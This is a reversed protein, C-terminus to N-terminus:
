KHNYITVRNKYVRKLSKQGNPWFDVKEDYTNSKCINATKLKPWNQGVKALTYKKIHILKYSDTKQLIQTQGAVKNHTFASIVLLLIVKPWFDNSKPWFDGHKPWFDPHKPWFQGSLINNYKAM